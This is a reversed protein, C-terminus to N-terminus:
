TIKCLSNRNILGSRSVKGITIRGSQSLLSEFEKWSQETQDFVLVRMHHDLGLVYTGFDQSFSFESAPMVKGSTAEAYKHIQEKPNGYYVEPRLSTFPSSVMMYVFTSCDNKGGPFIELPLKNEYQYRSLMAGTAIISQEIISKRAIVQHEKTLSDLEKFLVQTAFRILELEVQVNGGSQIECLKFQEKALSAYLIGPLQDPNTPRFKESLLKDLSKVSSPALAQARGEVFKNALSRSLEKIEESKKEKELMEICTHFFEAGGRALFLKTMQPPLKESIIRYEFLKDCLLGFTALHEQLYYAEDVKKKRADGSIYEKVCRIFETRPIGNEREFYLGNIFKNYTENNTGFEKYEISNPDCSELGISALSSIVAYTGVARRPFLKLFDRRSELNPDGEKM